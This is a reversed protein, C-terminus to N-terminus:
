PRRIGLSYGGSGTVAEVVYRYLGITGTYTLEADANPGVAEAVTVWQWGSFRQLRLDLDAEPPGDLCAAHVGSRAFYFMGGPQVQRGPGAFTGTYTLPYGTCAPPPPPPATTTTTPGVTTTPAVTTTTSPPPVTTSPPPPTSTTTTTPPQTTSTTTTTTTTTTTPPPPATTPPTGGDDVLYVSDAVNWNGALYSGSPPSTHYYDDHGCDLRDDHARDACVTRMAPYYPSDSYCMVDWEDTCHGGLSTNPANNNVAGLTHGLEHAAPGPAWCSRDVRAFSPGTNSRNADSKRTDGAFEGIGCYTSADAFVLYKRDARDHGLGRLASVMQGMNALASSSIEVNLVTATCDPGHVFRIHRRGGTEKASEDYITDVAAAWQEISSEYQAFRDNGPPHVYLVQVRPGSTGDGTCAAAAALTGGEVPPVEGAMTYGPPPADPGHTCGADGAIEYVGVCPGSAVEELGNYIQGTGPRNDPLDVPEVDAGRHVHGAGGAGGPGAAVPPAVVATVGLGLLAM